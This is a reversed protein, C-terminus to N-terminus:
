PCAPQDTTGYIPYARTLEGVRELSRAEIAPMDNASRALGQVVDSILHGITEFEATGFGRTTGVSVGFRIGSTVTPSQTDGPM